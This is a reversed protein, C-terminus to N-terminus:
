LLATLNGDLALIVVYLLAAAAVMAYVAREWLPWASRLWAAGSVAAMLVALGALAVPIVFAPRAAGSLSFAISLPSLISQLAFVMMVAVFVVALSLFAIAM